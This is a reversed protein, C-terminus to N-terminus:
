ANWHRTQVDLFQQVDFKDHILLIGGPDLEFASIWILMTLEVALTKLLTLMVRNATLADCHDLQDLPNFKTNPFKKRWDVTDERDIQVFIDDERPDTIETLYKFGSCGGGTVSIRFVKNVTNALFEKIKVKAGATILM